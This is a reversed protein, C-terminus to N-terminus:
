NIWKTVRDSRASRTEVLLLTLPRQRRQVAMVVLKLPWSTDKSIRHIKLVDEEGARSFTEWRVLGVMSEEITKFLLVLDEGPLVVHTCAGDIPMPENSEANIIDTLIHGSPLLLCADVTWTVNSTLIMPYLVEGAGSEWTIDQPFTVEFDGVAEEEQLLRKLGGSGKARKSKAARPGSSSKNSDNLTLKMFKTLIHENDAYSAIEESVACLYKTTSDDLKFTGCAIAVNIMGTVLRRNGTGAALYTICTDTSASNDITFGPDAGDFYSSAEKVSYDEPVEAIRVELTDEQFYDGVNTDDIFFKCSM